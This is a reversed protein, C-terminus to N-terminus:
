NLLESYSGKDMPKSRKGMSKSREGMPKSREQIQGMPKSRKGNTREQIPGFSGSRIGDPKPGKQNLDLCVEVYKTENGNTGRLDL